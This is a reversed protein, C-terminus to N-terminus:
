GVIIAVLRRLEDREEPTMASLKGDLFPEPRNNLRTWLTRWPRTKGRPPRGHERLMVLASLLDWAKSHGALGQLATRALTLYNM